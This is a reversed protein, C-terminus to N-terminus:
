DVKLQYRWREVVLKVRGYMLSTKSVKNAMIWDPDELKLRNEFIYKVWIVLFPTVFCVLHAGTDRLPGVTFQFPSGPIHM